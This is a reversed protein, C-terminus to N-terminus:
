RREGLSISEKVLHDNAAGVLPSGMLKMALPPDFMTFLSIVFFDKRQEAM